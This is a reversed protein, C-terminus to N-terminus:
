WCAESIRLSRFRKCRSLPEPRLAAAEDTGGARSLWADVTAKPEAGTPLAIGLLPVVALADETGAAADPEPLLELTAATARSCRIPVITVATTTSASMAAAPKPM